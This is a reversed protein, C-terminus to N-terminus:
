NVRFTSRSSAPITTGQLSSPALEGSDTQFAINVSVPIPHPNQVLVFTEMGGDTSGEAFYWTTSPATSGISDTAWTRFDSASAKEFGVPEVAALVGGHGATIFLAGFILLTALLGVVVMLWINGIRNSLM